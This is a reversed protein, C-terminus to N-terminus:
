RPARSVPFSQQTGGGVLDRYSIARGGGVVGERLAKQWYPNTAQLQQLRELYASQLAVEREGPKELGSAKGVVDMAYDQAEKQMATIAGFMRADNNARAQEGAAKMAASARLLDARVQERKLGYDAADGRWKNRAQNDTVADTRARDKRETAKDGAAEAQARAQQERSQVGLRGEMEQRRLESARADLKDRRSQDVDLTAIGAKGLNTFFNKSQGAMMGAGLRVLSDNTVRDYQKPMNAREAKIEDLFAQAADPGREKLIRQYEAEIAARRQEETQYEPANKFPSEYEPYDGGPMKISAIGGGGGRDEPPLRPIPTDRFPSPPQAHSQQGVWPPAEEWSSGGGGAEPNLMRDVKDMTIGQWSPHQWNYAAGALPPLPATSRYDQGTIYRTFDGIRSAWGGPLDPDVGAGPRKVRDGESFAVIGGSAYQPPIAQGTPLQPLGQQQAQAAMMTPNAVDLPSPPAQPAQAAPMGQLVQQAVTQQPQRKAQAAQQQLQANKRRQVEGLAALQVLSDGPNRAMEVLQEPPVQSLDGTQALANIGGGQQQMGQPIM